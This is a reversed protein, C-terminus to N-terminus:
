FRRACVRRRHESHARAAGRARGGARRSGDARRLPLEPLDIKQGTTGGQRVGLSDTRMIEFRLASHDETVSYLTGGDAGTLAKAAELINELLREINRERSLAAGIRNLQDLRAFLNMASQKEM